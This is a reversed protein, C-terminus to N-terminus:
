RDIKTKFGSVTLVVSGNVINQRIVRVSDIIDMERPSNYEIIKIDNFGNMTLTKEASDIELGLVNPVIM